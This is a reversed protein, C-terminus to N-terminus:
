DGLTLLSLFASADTADEITELMNVIHDVNLAIARWDIQTKLKEVLAHHGLPRMLSGLAAEIKHCLVRGDHLHLHIEAAELAFHAKDIFTLKRGLAGIAPDRVAHDSFAALDARGWSLAVAVAHQASVQALRGTTVNPRDTRERLLPHGTLTISAIMDTTFDQTQRLALCAEIVPNLVVGCPYPKFCNNLIEWRTGLGELLPSFDDEGGHLAFFGRKGELPEPPGEYGHLSLWAALLGGKAAQGVSLSKAMTGLTEVSGCSQALAHALAHVYQAPTLRLLRGAAMAAGFIGCTATIHWGRAYHHPHLMLGLRCSIEMGLIIAEILDRGHSRQHQHAKNEILALAAAIVCASPHIITPMHTDDYDFINASAANIYAAWLMDAREHRGILRAVAAGSFAPLLSVLQEIATEQSGGIACGLMNLLCHRGMIRVQEPLPPPTAIFHALHQSIM